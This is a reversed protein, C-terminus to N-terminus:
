HLFLEHGTMSRNKRELSGPEEEDRIRGLM